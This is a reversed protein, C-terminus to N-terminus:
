ITSGIMVRTTSQIRAFAMGERCHFGTPSKGIQLAQAPDDAIGADHRKALGGM